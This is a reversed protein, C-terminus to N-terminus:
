LDDENTKSKLFLNQLYHCFSKSLEKPLVVFLEYRKRRRKYREWHKDMNKKDEKFFHEVAIPLERCFRSFELYKLSPAHQDKKKRKIIEDIADVFPYMIIRINFLREQKKPHFSLMSIVKDLESLACVAKKKMQIVDKLKADTVVQYFNGYKFMDKSSSIRYELHGYSSHWKSNGIDSYIKNKYLHQVEINESSEYLYHLADIINDFSRSLFFSVLGNLGRSRISFYISFVIPFILLAFIFDIFMGSVEVILGHTYDCTKIYDIYENFNIM